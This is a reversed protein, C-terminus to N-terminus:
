LQLEENKASGAVSAPGTLSYIEAFKAPQRMVLLRAIEAFKKPTAATNLGICGQTALSDARDNGRNGNHGRVWEISVSVQSILGDIALWLEKNKVLAKGKAKTRWGNKRWKLRWQNTGKVAYQSDSKITVTGDAANECVWQLARILALLEMQQNTTNDQGGSDCHVEKGDQYVVFGWGGRGPNPVCAGDTFITLNSM